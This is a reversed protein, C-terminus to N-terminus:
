LVSYRSQRPFPRLFRIRRRIPESFCRRGRRNFPISPPVISNKHRILWFPFGPSHYRANWLGKMNGNRGLTKDPRFNERSLIKFLLAFDLHVISDEGCLRYGVRRRRGIGFNLLKQRHEIIIELTHGLQISRKFQTSM